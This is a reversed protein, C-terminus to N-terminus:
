TASELWVPLDTPHVGLSVGAAALDGPPGDFAIKGHRLLLVRDLDDAVAGLEHSVLVVAAGRGRAADVLTDRFRRQSEVDVGATPEDLVLLDPAAVLAKAIFARQQQGGSLEALSTGALHSLEITDLAQDVAARDDATPRRWWGRRALAGAAVVDRVTAPLLEVATPRQPVYGIRWRERLQRPPRGFLEVHGHSPLLVGLVVRMLTSKGSGNAGALAVLEGSAVEFSVCDLVPDHRYAFSVADARVAVNSMINAGKLQDQSGDGIRVTWSV